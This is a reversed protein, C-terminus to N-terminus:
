TSTSRGRFVGRTLAFALFLAEALSGGAVSLVAGRVGSTRVLLLGPGALWVAAALKSWLVAQPQDLVRVLISLSQTLATVVAALAFLPVLPAFSTYYGPGYLAALLTRAFVTITLGYVAAFGVNALLFGPGRRRLYPPGQEAVQRSMFPYAVMAIGALVQQMPLVLNQLARLAASQELGVLAGVLPVYLGNAIGHAVSAALIWRGYSWHDRVVTTVPLSTWPRSLLGLSAAIRLSAFASAVGMLLLAVPGTLWSGAYAWAVLGLLAAGYTASGALASGPHMALYSASRLFWHLLVLPTVIGLALPWAPPGPMLISGPWFAFAAIILGLPVTLAVHLRLLTRLYRQIQGSFRRSGVVSLPDTLLASHPGSVLVLAAFAIAFAGYDAPFLWRALLVNLVFNGGSIVAQDLVGVSLPARWRRLTAGAAAIM